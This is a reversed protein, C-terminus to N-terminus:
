VGCVDGTGGFHAGGSSLVPVLWHDSPPTFDIGGSGVFHVGGVPCVGGCSLGAGEVPNGRGGVGIGPLPGTEVGWLPGLGNTTGPGPAGFLGPSCRGIPGGRGIAAGCCNRGSGLRGGGPM